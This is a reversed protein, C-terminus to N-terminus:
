TPVGLRTIEQTGALFAYTNGNVLRTKIEWYYLGVPLPLIQPLVKFLGANAQTLQIGSGVELKLREYREGARRYLMLIEAGTLDVPANITTNTLTIASIGEWTTGEYVAPLHITQPQTM